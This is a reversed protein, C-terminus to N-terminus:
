LAQAADLNHWFVNGKHPGEAVMVEHTQLGAPKAHPTVKLAKGTTQVVLGCQTKFRLGPEVSNMEAYTM